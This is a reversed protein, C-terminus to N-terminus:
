ISNALIPFSYSPIFASIQAIMKRLPTEFDFINRQCSIYKYYNSHKIVRELMTIKSECMLRRIKNAVEHRNGELSHLQYFRVSRGWTTLGPIRCTVYFLRGVLKKVAGPSKLRKGDVTSYSPADSDSPFVKNILSVISMFQENGTSGINFFIADYEGKIWEVKRIGTFRIVVSQDVIEDDDWMNNGIYRLLEDDGVLYPNFRLRPNNLIKELRMKGYPVENLPVGYPGIM